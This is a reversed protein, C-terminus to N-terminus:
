KLPTITVGIWGGDVHDAAPFETLFGDLIAQSVADNLALAPNSAQEVYYPRGYIQVLWSM